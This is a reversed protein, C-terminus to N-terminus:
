TGKKRGLGVLRQFENRSPIGLIWGFWFSITRKCIMKEHCAQRRFNRAGLALQGRAKREGPVPQELIRKEWSRCARSIKRRMAFKGKFNKEGVAEPGKLEQRGLGAGSQFLKREGLASQGEQAGTEWALIAQLVKEM